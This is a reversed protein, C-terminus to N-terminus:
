KGRRGCRRVAEEAEGARRREEAAEARLDTAPVGVGAKGKWRRHTSSTRARRRATTVGLSRRTAEGAGGVELGRDDGTQRM